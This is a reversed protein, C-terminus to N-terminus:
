RRFNSYTPTPISISFIILQYIINLLFYYSRSYIIYFRILLKSFIILQNLSNPDFYMIHCVSQYIFCIHLLMLYSFVLQICKILYYYLSYWLLQSSIYTLLILFQDKSTFSIYMYSYYNIHFIAYIYLLVPCLYNFQTIERIYCCIRFYVIEFKTHLLFMYLNKGLSNTISLDICYVIYYIYSIHFIMTYMFYCQLISKDYKINCFRIVFFKLLLRSSAKDWPYLLIQYKM